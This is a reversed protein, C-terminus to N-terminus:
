PNQEVDRAIGRPAAAGRQRIRRRGRAMGIHHLGHEIGTAPDDALGVHVLQGIAHGAHVAPGSRRGIRWGPWIGPPDDLPEAAATAAPSHSKASPVSVPPDIRVGAAQQPTNPRL